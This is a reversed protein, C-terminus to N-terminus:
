SQTIKNVRDFPQYNKMSLKHDSATNLMCVISGYLARHISTFAAKQPLATGFHLGLILMLSLTLAMNRNHLLRSARRMEKHKYKCPPALVKNYNKLTIKAPTGWAKLKETWNKYMIM